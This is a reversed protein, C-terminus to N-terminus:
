QMYGAAAEEFYETVHAIGAQGFCEAAGIFRDEMFIRWLHAEM